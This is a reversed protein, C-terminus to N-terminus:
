LTKKIKISNMIQHAVPQWKEKERLPSTFNFLITKNNVIAYHILTYKSIASTQNVANSEGEVFSEFEFVAYTIDNITQIEQKIFKVDSYLTRISNEYFEKMIEIDEPKWHTVSLNVGFDVTRDPSTYLAIPDRYSIFKAAIDQETMPVFDEPLALRLDNNVKIKQLSIEQANSASIFLVVAAVAFLYRLVRM